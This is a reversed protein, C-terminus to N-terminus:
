GKKFVDKRTSEGRQSKTTTQVLMTGDAEISRVEKFETVMEGQQTTMTRTGETALKGGDFKTKSKSVTKGRQNESENTSESGDTKYVVKTTNQGRTTEITIDAPTQTVTLTQPTPTPAAGGGGGGRGGMPDSKELDQTWKGSFDPKAQASALSPMALAIACVVAFLVFRRTM